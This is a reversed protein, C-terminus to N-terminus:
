EEPAPKTYPPEIFVPKTYVFLEGDSDEMIRFDDDLYKIQLTATAARGKNWPLLKWVAGVPVKVSWIWEGLGQLGQVPKATTYDVELNLVGDEGLKNVKSVTVVRGGFTPLLKFWGLVPIVTLSFLSTDFESIFLEEKADIVQAVRGVKSAGWSCTQLEHLKFFLSAKEPQGGIAYAEQIALFFPSSRFIGYPVTTLVLEWEGELDNLSTPLPPALKILSQVKDKAFKLKDGYYEGSTPNHAQGRDLSAGLQLIQTKLLAADTTKSATSMLFRPKSSKFISEKKIHFGNFASAAVFLTALFLLVVFQSM